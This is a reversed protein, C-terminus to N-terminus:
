WFSPRVNTGGRTRCDICYTSSAEYGILGFMGYVPNIPISDGQAFAEELAFASAPVTDIECFPTRNFPISLPIDSRRIFLRKQTVAGASIYGLVPEDPNTTCHLNGPLQSPQPDFLTGLSESNKKLLDWYEFAEKTLAYQKVLISYRVDMKSNTRLNYAVLPQKYIVDQQLQVTSSVLIQTSADSQWCNFIPDQSFDRNVIEGDIYELNSLFAANYQWTEEFTWRYYKTSNNPDHTTVQLQITEANPTMWTISDIEPASTIPVFDSVYETDNATYIKVRYQEDTNLDLDAAYMGEEVETFFYSQSGSENEVFVQASTERASRGENLNSTRSLQFTSKGDSIIGEVVLYSNPFGGVPSDYPEVCASLVLLVYILLKGGTIKIQM